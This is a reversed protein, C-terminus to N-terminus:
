KRPVEEVGDWVRVHRMVDGQSLKDLVDMGAVVRGFVTYRADLQPQPGYTIFFQSGATDRWDLAMGVTGRVYPKMNPEDRITYGPGGESDARPDGTQAVFDPVLRHISLGEFFGKGVLEIFNGCTLPADLVDLEIQVTGKDTEFYVHPSVAPNVVLSTDYRVSHSPPAPRIAHVADSSPDITKLLEAARERVAWDKDALASQLTPTAVAPGYKALASMAAVRASYSTDGEGRKFAAVLPQVAEEPRLEGLNNAAYTRVVFDDHNLAQVLIKVIDPAKLKTLATLVAPLVRADPDTLMRTLQALVRERDKGGLITALEARVTWHPDPDLGSLVALFTDDEGKAVSRLAALRVVPSPDALLDVLFDQSTDIGVSGAAQVAEARLMVNAGRARIVRLLPESARPDGIAALARIAEVAPGSAGATQDVMKLLLPVASADKITALGRVAFARTFAGDSAALTVLAALARKDGAQQLAYAVPWWHVKPQGDPTLLASALPEYAKLRALSLVGLRFAEAGPDLPFRSEDPSLMAAAAVNAAVLKGIDAASETDGILGLAEAARGAVLPSSDALAQRLAAAQARDGLLGLAFAAMQRVEPDSDSQVVTVLNPAAESLGVRGVALAARRRIRGEPDTLLRVLDPPPPPPPPLATKKGGIAAPPPAIPAAADRLIRQDELRLIWSMKTEFSVTPPTAAPPASACRTSAVIVLLVVSAPRMLFRIYKEAAQVEVVDRDITRDAHALGRQGFPKGTPEIAGQHALVRFIGEEGVEVGISRPGSQLGLEEIQEVTMPLEDLPTLGIEERLIRNAVVDEFFIPNVRVQVEIVVFQEDVLPEEVQEGLIHRSGVEDDIKLRGGFYQELAKARPLRIGFARGQNWVLVIQALQVFRVMVEEKM